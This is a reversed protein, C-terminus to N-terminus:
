NRADILQDLNLLNCNTKEEEEETRNLKFIQTDIGFIRPMIIDSPNEITEDAVRSIWLYVDVICRM